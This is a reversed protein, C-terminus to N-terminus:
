FIGLGAGQTALLATLAQGLAPTLAPPVRWSQLGGIAGFTGDFSRTRWWRGLKFVQEEEFPSSSWWVTSAPWSASTAMISIHNNFTLNVRSRVMLRRRAICLIGKSLRTRSELAKKASEVSKYVFLAFGRPKGTQKHIDEAAHVGVGSARDPLAPIPGASALQCSTMRNGIKKQPEKLAKQAGARHKFLIFAYGKSKGSVKDTVAKCDEIEGYKGFECLSNRRFPELLKEVPEDELDEGGGGGGNAEVKVENVATEEEEEDDEEDEEQGDEEEEEQEKNEEELNQANEEQGLEKEIVDDIASQEEHEHDQQQEHQPEEMAMPAPEEEVSPQSARSKRKKAM